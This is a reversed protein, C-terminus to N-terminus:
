KPRSSSWISSIPYQGHGSGGEGHNALVVEGELRRFPDDAQGRHLHVRGDGARLLVQVPRDRGHLHRPPLPGGQDGEGLAREGAVAEVAGLFGQGGRQIGLARHQRLQGPRGAPHPHIGRDAVQLPHPVRRGVRDRDDAGGADDGVIALGM